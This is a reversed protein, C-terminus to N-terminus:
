REKASEPRISSDSTFMKMPGLLAPLDFMMVAISSPSDLV